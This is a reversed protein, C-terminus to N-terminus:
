GRTGGKPRYKCGMGFVRLSSEKEGDVGSNRQRRLRSIPIQLLEKGPVRGFPPNIKPPEEMVMIAESISLSYDRRPGHTWPLLSTSTNEGIKHKM